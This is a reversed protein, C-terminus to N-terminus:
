VQLGTFQLSLNDARGRIYAIIFSSVLTSYSYHFNENLFPFVYCDTAARTIRFNLKAYFSWKKILTGFLDRPIIKTAKPEMRQSRSESRPTM